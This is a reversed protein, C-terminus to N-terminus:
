GVQLKEPHSAILTIVERLVSEVGFVSAAIVKEDRTTVSLLLDNIEAESIPM